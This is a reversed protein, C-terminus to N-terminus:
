RAPGLASMLLAYSNYETASCGPTGECQQTGYTPLCADTFGAGNLTTSIPYNMLDGVGVVSDLGYIKAMLKSLAIGKTATALNAESSLIVVGTNNAHADGCDAAIHGPNNPNGGLTESTVIVMDYDALAPEDRTLCIDFPAWHGRVLEFLEDVDPDDYSQWTGVQQSDATINAPANEALGMTLTGGDFNIWVTRGAVGVCDTPEGTSSSSEVAGADTLGDDSSSTETGSVSTAGSSGTSGDESSAPVTTSPAGAGTSDAGTTALGGSTPSEDGDIVIPTNPSYCGALLLPLAAARRLRHM